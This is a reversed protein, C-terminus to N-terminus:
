LWCEPPFRHGHAREKSERCDCKGHDGDTKGCGSRIGLAVDLRDLVGIEEAEIKAGFLVDREILALCGADAVLAALGEGVIGLHFPAEEFGIELRHVGEGAGDGALDDFRGALLLLIYTSRRAQGEQAVIEDLLGVVELVIEGEGVVLLALADIAQRGIGAEVEGGVVQGVRQLGEM